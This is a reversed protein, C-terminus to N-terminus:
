LPYTVSRELRPGCCGGKTACERVYMCVYIYIHIYIYISGGGGWGLAGRRARRYQLYSYIGISITMKPDGHQSMSKQHKQLEQTVLLVDWCSLIIKM